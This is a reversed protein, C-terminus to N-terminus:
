FVKQPSIAEEVDETPLPKDFTINNWEDALLTTARWITIPRKTWKHVKFQQVWGRKEWENLIEDLDTVSFFRTRVKQNLHYKTIGDIGAGLLLRRIKTAFQHKSAFKAM